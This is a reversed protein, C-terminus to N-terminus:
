LEFKGELYWNRGRNTSEDFYLQTEERFKRFFLENTDPDKTHQTILIEKYRNKTHTYGSNYSGKGYCFARQHYHRVKQKVSLDLNIENYIKQNYGKGFFCEFPDANELAGKDGVSITLVPTFGNVMTSVLEEM